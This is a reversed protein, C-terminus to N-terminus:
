HRRVAWFAMGAYAGLIAVGGWLLALGGMGMRHTVQQGASITVLAVLAPFFSWLYVTLPMSGGLRMATLAGALVMVLGAAANAWREHRKSVVERELRKLRKSLENAPEAIFADPGKANAREEVVRLLERSNMHLLPPLPNDRPLLNGTGWKEYTSGRDSGGARTTVNEMDLKLELRRAARDKGIDSQLGATSARLVVSAPGERDAGEDWRRVEIAQAGNGNAKRPVLEWRDNAREIGSAYIVYMRGSGDELKVSGKDRLSAEMVGIADREAIHYALDRRRMDIFNMNDPNRPLERLEGDTLYKPDDNFVGPITAYLTMSETTGLGKGRNLVQPHRLELSLQTAGGARDEDTRTTYLALVAQTATAESRIDGNPETTVAFV